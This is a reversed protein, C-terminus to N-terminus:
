LARFRPFTLPFICAPERPGAGQRLCFFQRMPTGRVSFDGYRQLRLAFFVVLPTRDRLDLQIAQRSVKKRAEARALCAGGPSISSLFLISISLFSDRGRNHVPEKRLIQRTFKKMKTFKWASSGVKGKKTVWRPPSATAMPAAVANNLMAEMTDRGNTPQSMSVRPRKVMRATPSAPMAITGTPYKTDAPMAMATISRVAWPTNWAADLLAEDVQTVSM